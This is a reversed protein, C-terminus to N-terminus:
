YIYDNLKHCHNKLDIKSAELNKIAKVITDHNMEKAPVNHRYVLLIGPHSEGRKIKQQALEVFDVCNITIIMRNLAIAKELVKSDPKRILEADAVTLVDHGADKLKQILLKDLICEDALLRLM